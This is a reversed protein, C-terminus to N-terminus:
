LLMDFIYILTKQSNRPRISSQHLCLWNNFIYVNYLTRFTSVRGNLFFLILLIMQFLVIYNYSFMSLCTTYFVYFRLTFLACHGTALWVSFIECILFKRQCIRIAEYAQFYRLLLDFAYYIDLTHFHTLM